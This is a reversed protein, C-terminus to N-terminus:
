RSKESRALPVTAEKGTKIRIRGGDGFMRQRAPHM